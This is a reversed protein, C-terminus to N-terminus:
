IRTVFQYISLIVTGPLEKTNVNPNAAQETGSRRSGELYIKLTFSIICGLKSNFGKGPGM